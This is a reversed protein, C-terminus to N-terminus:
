AAVCRLYLSEFDDNRAPFEPFRALLAAESLKEMGAFGNVRLAWSLLEFDFLNKHHGFQHFAFNVAHAAPFDGVYATAHRTRQFALLEASRGELYYRCTKELDPCIIWVEAAPMCVRRLEGLIRMLETTLEFHEVVHQAVIIDFSGAPFPLPRLMDLDCDSGTLDVNLWGPVRRLGCGFHLRPPAPRPRRFATRLRTRLRALDYQMGIVTRDSFVAGIWRRLNRKMNENAPAPM